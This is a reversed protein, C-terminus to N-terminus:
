PRANPRDHRRGAAEARRGPQPKGSAVVGALGPEITRRTAWMVETDYPLDFTDRGATEPDDRLLADVSALVEAQSSPEAAAVFSM